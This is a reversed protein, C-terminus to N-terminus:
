SGTREGLVGFRKKGLLLIHRLGLSPTPERGQRYSEESRPTTNAPCFTLIKRKTCHRPHCSRSVKLALICVMSEILSTCHLTKDVSNLQSPNRESTQSREKKHGRLSLSLSSLLLTLPPSPLPPSLYRQRSLCTNKPVFYMNQRSLLISTAHCVCTQRSMKKTAVLMSKNRCFVDKTAVYVHKDRCFYAQRSLIHKDRCFINTAIFIMSIAARATSLPSPHNHYRRTPQPRPPTPHPQTPHTSSAKIKREM